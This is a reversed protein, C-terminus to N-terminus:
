FCEQELEACLLTESSESAIPVEAFGVKLGVTILLVSLRGTTRVLL